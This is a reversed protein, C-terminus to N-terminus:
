SMETDYIEKREKLVCDDCYWTMKAQLKHKVKKRIEGFIAGNKDDCGIPINVRFTEFKRAWFINTDSEKLCISCTYNSM